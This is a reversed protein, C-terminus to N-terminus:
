LKNINKLFGFYKKCNNCNYVAYKNNEYTMIGIYKISYSGCCSCGIIKTKDSILGKCCEKKM